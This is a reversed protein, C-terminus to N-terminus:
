GALWRAAAAGAVVAVLGLLLSGFANAAALSIEGGRVLAVTEYGVSSFTTFSGLVGLGLFLRLDPRVAVRAEVLGMLAGLALCGVANVTLTGWPFAVGAFRHVWGTVLYRAVAGVFGGMGVAFLERM